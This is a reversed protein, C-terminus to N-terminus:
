RYGFLNFEDLKPQHKKTRNREYNYITKSLDRLFPLGLLEYEYKGSGIIDRENVYISSSLLFEVKNKFDVVYACDILFGYARGVINFIRVSDGKITAVSSGYMFYKKYSDYYVKKPYKPYASEKPLMGLQKVMFQWNEQSLNLRDSEKLHNRFIIRRMIDHLDHLELYNHKSFDKPGPFKKGDADVHQQGVKSDEIPHAKKYDSFTLPQKYLTDKNEALFYIPPTIKATDGPCGSDLRNTIRINEYGLNELKKHLYDCGVFEYTRACAQNDSVLLMKRIYNGISPFDTATSTDLNIKRQCFFASDTIMSTELGVGQDKLEQLKLLAVLAVPLKVVSAPYFYNKNLHFKYEKFTAYNYKDRNIQTYIVQVKYKDPQSLVKSYAPLSTKLLSDLFPSTQSKASFSLLFVFLFISRFM